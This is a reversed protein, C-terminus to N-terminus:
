RQHACNRSYASREGPGLGMAAGEDLCRSIRRDFSERRQPKLVQAPPKGEHVYGPTTNQLAFPPPSNMTPVQPVTIAPPPPPAPPPPLVARGGPTTYVQAFATAGLPAVCLLCIAVLKRM